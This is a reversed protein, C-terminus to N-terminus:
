LTLPYHHASLQPHHVFQQECTGCMRQTPDRDLVEQSIPSKCCLCLGYTGGDIREFAARLEDLKPDTKFALLADVDHLTITGGLFAERSQEVAGVEQLRSFMLSLIQRRM